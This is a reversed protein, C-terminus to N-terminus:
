LDYLYVIQFPFSGRELIITDVCWVLTINAWGLFWAVSVIAHKLDFTKKLSQIYNKIHCPYFIWFFTISHLVAYSYIGLQLSVHWFFADFTTKTLMSSPSEDCVFFMLCPFHFPIYVIVDWGLCICLLMSDRANLMFLKLDLDPM